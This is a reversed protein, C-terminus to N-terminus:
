FVYMVNRLKMLGWNYKQLQLRFVVVKMLIKFAFGFGMEIHFINWLRLHGIYNRLGTRKIKTMNQELFKFEWLRTCYIHCLNSDTSSTCIRQMWDFGAYWADFIVFLALDTVRYTADIISSVRISNVEYTWGKGLDVTIWGNWRKNKLLFNLLIAYGIVIWNCSVFCRFHMSCFLDNKTCYWSATEGGHEGTGNWRGVIWM